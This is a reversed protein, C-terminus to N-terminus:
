QKLQMAVAIRTADDLVEKPLGLVDNALVRTKGHNGADDPFFVRSYVLRGRQRDTGTRRAEVGNEYRVKVPETKITWDKETDGTVRLISDLM